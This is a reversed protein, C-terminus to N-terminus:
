TLLESLQKSIELIQLAKKGKTTNVKGSLVRGVYDPSCGVKQAIKGLTGNIKTPNDKCKM